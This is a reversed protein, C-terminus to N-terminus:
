GAEGDSVDIFHVGERMGFRRAQAAWLGRLRVPAELTVPAAQVEAAAGGLKTMDAPSLAAEFGCADCVMELVPYFAAEVMLQGVCAEQDDPWKRDALARHSCMRSGVPHLEVFQEFRQRMQQAKSVKPTPPVPEETIGGAKLKWALLGPKADPKADWWECTRFVVDPTTSSLFTDPNDLGRERLAERARARDRQTDTSSTHM